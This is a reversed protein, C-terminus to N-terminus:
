EMNRCQSDFFPGKENLYLKRLYQGINIIRESNCVSIIQECVCNFKGHVEGITQEQVVKFFAVAYM